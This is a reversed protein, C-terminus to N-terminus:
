APTKTLTQMRQQISIHKIENATITLKATIKSWHVNCRHSYTHANSYIDTPCKYVFMMKHISTNRAQNVRTQAIVHCTAVDVNENVDFASKRHTSTLEPPCSFSDFHHSIHTRKSATLILLPKTSQAARTVCGM